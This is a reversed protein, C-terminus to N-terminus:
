FSNIPNKVIANALEATQYQLTVRNSGQRLLNAITSNESVMQHTGAKGRTIVVGGKTVPKDPFSGYEEILGILAAVTICKPVALQAVDLEKLNKELPHRVLVVFAREKQRDYPVPVPGTADVKSKKTKKKKDKRYKTRKGFANGNDDDDMEYGGDMNNDDDDKWEAGHEQLARAQRKLGEDVQQALSKADFSQAIKEIMEDERKEMEELNPYISAVLRDFAPDRRLNRKSQCKTRCTPCEKNSTRLCTIICNGCFRHMCDMTTMTQKLINLCIPCTLDQNFIKQDLTIEKNVLPLPKRHMGYLTLGPLVEDDVSPKTEKRVFEWAKRELEEESHGRNYYNEDTHGKLM